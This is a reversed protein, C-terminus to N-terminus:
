MELVEAPLLGQRKGRGMMFGDRLGAKAPNEVIYRRYHELQAQSRVIHDFTESQWLSGSRGSLQNIKRASSGKWTKLVQGLTNGDMPEVLAHFHNPMIVWADLQYNKEHGSIVIESLVEIVNPRALVCEGHGADLLQHFKLTFERHFAIRDVEPLQDPNADAPLGHGALWFTRQGIWHDRIPAPVSDALRTTIFYTRGWQRWHPLNLRHRHVPEDPIYPTFAM